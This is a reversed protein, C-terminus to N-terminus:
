KLKQSNVRAMSWFFLFVLFGCLILLWCGAVAVDWRYQHMLSQIWLGLSWDRELVLRSVAFDSMGWVACLGSLIFLMPSIQPWVVRRFLFVTTAGMQRASDIQTQLRLLQQYIGLRFLVPAFIVTLALAAFFFAMEGEATWMSFGYAVISVSPVCLVGLLKRTHPKLSLLTWVALLLVCFGGTLFGLLLSGTLVIPLSRSFEPYIAIARLGPLLRLVLGMILIASPLGAVFFGIRSHCLRLLEVGGNSRSSYTQALAFMPILLIAQLIFYQFAKAPNHATALQDYITKEVSTFTAGGIILPISISTLFYFFLVTLILLGDRAILPFMKRFFFGGRAGLAQAVASHAGWKDDAIRLFLIGAFGMMSLAHLLIVGKMGFPFRPIVSLVSIIVFLSPLLSPLAVLYEAALMGQGAFRQRFWLLGGAVLVGLLATLVMSGLAQQTSASYIELLNHLPVDWGTWLSFFPIYPAIYVGFLAILIVYLAHRSRM